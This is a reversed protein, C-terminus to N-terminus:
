RRDAARVQFIGDARWATILDGVLARDTGTGAIRGPVQFTQLQNDYQDNMPDGVGHSLALPLTKVLYTM